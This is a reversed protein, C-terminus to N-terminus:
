HTGYVFPKHMQTSNLKLIKKKNKKNCIRFRRWLEPPLNEDNSRLHFSSEMNMELLSVFIERGQFAVHNYCSGLNLSSLARSLTRAHMTTQTYSCCM